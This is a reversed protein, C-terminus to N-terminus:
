QIYTIQQNDEENIGEIHNKHLGVLWLIVETDDTVVYYQNREERPIKEDMLIDKLKKTGNLGKYTMRDGNRRTRIHIPLKVKSLPVRYTYLEDIEKSM